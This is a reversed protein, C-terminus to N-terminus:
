SFVYIHSIVNPFLKAKASIFGDNYKIKLYMAHAMMSQKYWGITIEQLNLERNSNNGHM